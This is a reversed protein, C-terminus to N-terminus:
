KHGKPSSYGYWLTEGAFVSVRLVGGRMKRRHGNKLNIVEAPYPFRLSYEGPLLAHVSVFNGNMDVQLGYKESPVYADAVLAIGHLQRGSLRLLEEPLVLRVGQSKLKALLEKRASDGGNRLGFWVVVRMGDLASADSLVDEALYQWYPVGSSALVAHYANFDRGPEKGAVSALSGQEDILVAMSPRWPVKPSDLLKRYIRGADAIDAAIRASEYWGGAMDFMWWGAGNAMMQGAARRFVSQWMDLGKATGMGVSDAETSGIATLSLDTRLDFENVFIKGHRRFSALPLRLGLPVGPARNIYMPQAVLM